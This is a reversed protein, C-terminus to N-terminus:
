LFICLREFHRTQHCCPTATATSFLEVGYSDSSGFGSIFLIAIIKNCENLLSVTDDAYAGL